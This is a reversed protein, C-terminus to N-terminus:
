YGRKNFIIYGFNLTLYFRTNPKEYYNVMISAPGAGTNYVLAALGQLYYSTFFDESKSLPLIRM